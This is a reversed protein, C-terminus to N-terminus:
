CASPDATTPMDGAVLDLPGCATGAVEIYGLVPSIISGYAVVSVVGGDVTVTPPQSQRVMSTSADMVLRIALGGLCERETTPQIENGTALDTLPPCTGALVANGPPVSQVATVGFDAAAQAATSAISFLVMHVGILITLLVGIFLIAIPFVEGSEGDCRSPRVLNGASARM